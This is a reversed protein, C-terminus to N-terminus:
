PLRVVEPISGADAQGNMPVAAPSATRNAVILRFNTGRFPRSGTIEFGAEKILAELDRIPFFARRLLLFQPVWFLTMAFRYLARTLFHQPWVEDAIFLRGGPRLIRHCDRLIYLLYEKPFEGLVMTATIGDLSGDPFHKRLQTVSDKILTLSGDGLEAAANKEAQELMSASSDVGTVQAGRRICRLALTATGCGIDLVRDGKNISAAIEDKIRDLRGATMVKVAWDYREPAHEVFIMWGYMLAM